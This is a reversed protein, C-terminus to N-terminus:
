TIKRCKHCTKEESSGHPLTHIGCNKLYRKDDSSSLAIKSIKQTYMERQKAQISYIDAYIKSASKVVNRFAQISLKARAPKTIGKCVVTEKQINSARAKVRTIYCKSRLGIVETLYNGKSEDKFYGPKAKNEVSYRPHDEPYNSFDMCPSLMDLIQTRTMQRIHLVFSDTDTLVISVNDKGLTPQIFNYWSRYMHLKSIELISFGTAYLRDLKIARKHHYVAVVDESLINHAKYSPSSYYKEFGREMTCIKVELHKRANQLFKGYVANMALKWLLANFSDGAEVAKVRQATCYDIYPKLYRRQEFKIIRHIKKLKLGMKLYMQLMRYHLVYKRKNTVDTVLKKAKYKKAEKETKLLKLIKQSYPSLQNFTLTKHYPLPPLSALNSHIELPCLLDVELIYGQPCDIDINNIHIKIQAIEEKSCWEYSGFPMPSSQGVSYLNNADIYLLHNQLKDEIEVNNTTKTYNPTRVHRENIFSVGGRVNQEIMLVMDPDHMLQIPEPFTKLCCDFALQPFSIYATCDLEFHKFMQERFASMVEGLLITDLRCYLHCYDLMNECQFFSFIDKGRQYDQDTINEEKLLSYFSKHLPFSQTQKLKDISSAWEYPYVGKQLLKEKIVSATKFLPHKDLFPFSHGSKKLTGVLVDLSATLMAISDIFTIKGIELTRFKKENYPIGSIEQQNSAYKLGQLIFQSDYNKFNHIYIPIHNSITRKWNCKSHAAGLYKNTYHCHDHVKNYGQYRYNFEEKCLYCIHSAKYSNEEEETYEKRVKFQQLLPIINDTIYDLTSFFKKMVNNRDSETKEFIIRNHIDLLVICYTTPIQHHLTTTKHTCLKEDGRNKCNQCNYRLANEERTVPKLTAEFDCCGFIPQLVQKGFARFEVTAGEQPYDIRAEDERECFSIHNELADASAFSNLCIVCHFCKSDATRLFKNINSIFIYHHKLGGRRQQLFLNVTKDAKKNISRHVPVMKKDLITFVNIRLNLHKNKQEFKQIHQLNLPLELKKTNFHQKTYARTLVGLKNPELNLSSKDLFALAVSNFFCEDKISNVDILYKKKHNAVDLRTENCGGALSIKGIEINAKKIQNLAWGSGTSLFHENREEIETLCQNVKSGINNMDSLLVCKSTSRLHFLSISSDDIKGLEDYKVYEAVMILSFRLLHKLALQHKILETSSRHIHEAVMEVNTIGMDPFNCSFTSVRRNFATEIEEFQNNEPTAHRNIYHLKIDGESAFKETCVKCKFSYAIHKKSSHMSINGVLEECFLCENEFAHKLKFHNKVSTLTKGEYDCITCVYTKKPKRLGFM